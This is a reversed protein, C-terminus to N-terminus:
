QCSFSFNSISYDKSNKFNYHWWESRITTFGFHTMVGKLLNRNNRVEESLGEYSWQAEEGFHDFVTGMDVQISDLTEMTLDVAGGRNHISGKKNPNAVYRANPYIEWMQFQVSLPRYCDFLRLRYGLRNLSDNVEVLAEAVEKRIVCEACPYVKEHLFNSTDAYRLDYSIETTISRLEVFSTDTLEEEITSDEIPVEQEKISDVSVPSVISDQSISPKELDAKTPNCGIILWFIPFFYVLQKM